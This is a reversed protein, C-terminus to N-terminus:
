FLGFVLCALCHILIVFTITQCTTIFHRCLQELSNLKNEFISTTITLVINRVNKGQKLQQVVPSEEYHGNPLSNDRIHPEDNGDGDSGGSGIGGNKNCTFSTAVNGILISNEGKETSEVQM